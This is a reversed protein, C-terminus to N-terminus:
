RDRGDDVRARPAGRDPLGDGAVRRLNGRIGGELRERGGVPLREPPCKREIARETQHVASPADPRVYEPSSIPFLSIPARDAGSAIVASAKRCAPCARTSRIASRSAAIGRFGTVRSSE